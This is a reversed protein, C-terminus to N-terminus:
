LRYHKGSVYAKLLYKVIIKSKKNFLLKITSSISEKLLLFLGSFRPKYYRLRLGIDYSMEKLRFETVPESEKMLKSLSHEFGPIIKIKRSLLSLKVRFFFTTDVGYFYFREDFVTQHDRKIKAVIKQGIVLGSGIGIFKDKDSVQDTECCLKRNLKPGNPIGNSLILPVGIEDTNLDFIKNFYKQNLCSDDDLIIYKDSNFDDIFSNYIKSLSENNVTERMEVDFGIREFAEVDHNMLSKPGNNWIVLLHNENNLSLSEISNLTESDVTEKGYLLVMFAASYSSKM